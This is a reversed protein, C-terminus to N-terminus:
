YAFSLKDSEDDDTTEADPDAPAEPGELVYRREILFWAVGLAAYLLTFIILSTWVLGSSNFSVGDQVLMNIKFPDAEDPNAWNPAVVWPQRGMETFIWGSANALFPTPLMWLALVAFKRPVVLGGGPRKKRLLWLGGFAVIVSGLAWTIMARFSWYTVFLNPAFNQGAPFASSEAVTRALRGEERAKAFDREYQAQLEEVGQVRSDFTHDALFSLMNPIVIIHNIHDCNNQTGISLVSFGAGDASECLSEAAAMKMPQQKFMLQAQADGTIFLGIGSAITMWLAFLAVPRWLKRNDDMLQEASAGLQSPATTVPATGAELKKARISNRAMWYLCVVAVVTAATLWAGLIVHPFALLTTNNTLVEVISTMQPRQLEESWEVGVPHQMFSNAAIIFYASATVGIAVLWITALHLTKNLRQWGFFWLGLFTSELFFALLGELALPAGFVDAVFRSYQSWNMGFQFEQVIGTAVGLAFNILFLKGFFKTARLWAENGTKWWVTQMIAIMPALGITLPVLIFHYVTTIGFQWRSIDVVNM